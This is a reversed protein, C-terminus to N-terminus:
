RCRAACRGCSASPSSASTSWRATRPASAPDRGRDARHARLICRSTTTKGCGSEGVLALTEGEHSTFSVDDVARVHGVTASCSARASRSSSRCAACRSCVNRSMGTATADSTAPLLEGRTRRGVPRLAPTRAPRLTGAMFEACRPHFPCGRRGTSRTRSRAASRRCGSAAGRESARSRACCRRPTPISRTTSSRRGGPGGRGRPRSVHGGRRRGDRRDRGPRPHHAHHAM